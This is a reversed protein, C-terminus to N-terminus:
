PSRGGRPNLQQQQRLDADSSKHSPVCKSGPSSRWEPSVFSLVCLFWASKVAAGSVISMMQQFCEETFVFQAYVFLM